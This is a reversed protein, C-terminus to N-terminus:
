RTTSLLGLRRPERGDKQPKRVSEMHGLWSGLWGGEPTGLDGFFLGWTKSIAAVDGLISRNTFRGFRYIGWLETGM